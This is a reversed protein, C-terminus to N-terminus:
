TDVRDRISSVDIQYHAIWRYLTKRDVALRQAVSAVNGGAQAVLRILNEKAPRKQKPRRQRDPPLTPGCTTVTHPLPVLDYRTFHQPDAESEIFREVTNQLERVNGPWHYRALAHVVAPALSVRRGTRAEVFHHLLPIVDARRDALSPVEVINQSLRYWLDARFRGDSIRERIDPQAAAILRVDAHLPTDSGIARYMKTEIFRLLATQLVTPAATVEDLFLTGGNAQAILGSRRQEAGSYAGRMHGFLESHLVGEAVGGCNVVVFHGSRESQEHIARAVLEKGTGTEGVVTVNKQTLAVHGIRDLLQALPWSTGMLNAHTPEPYTPPRRELMLTVRGITITDHPHLTAQAIRTGNVFTGNHSDLDTLTLPDGVSLRAHQRSVKSHAFVGPLFRENNRGLIVAGNKSLTRRVGVLKPDDHEIVVLGMCLHACPQPSFHDDSETATDNVRLVLTVYRAASGCRCM